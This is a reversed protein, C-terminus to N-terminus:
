RDEGLEGAGSFDMGTEDDVYYPIEEESQEAEKEALELERGQLFIEKEETGKITPNLAELIGNMQNKHFNNINNKMNIETAKSLTYASLTLLFM